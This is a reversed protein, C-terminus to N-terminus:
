GPDDSFRAPESRGVPAASRRSRRRRWTVPRTRPAKLKGVTACVEVAKVRRAANSAMSAAGTPPRADGIAASIGGPKGEEDAVAEVRELRTGVGDRDLPDRWQSVREPPESRPFHSRRGALSREGDVITVQRDEGPEKWQDSLLPRPFPQAGVLRRARRRVQLRSRQSVSTEGGVAFERRVM